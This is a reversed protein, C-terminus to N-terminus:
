QNGLGNIELVLQYAQDDLNSRPIVADGLELYMHSSDDFTPWAPRGQGNPDGTKAFGVWYNMMDESLSLDQPEPSALQQIEDFNGFAYVIEIGHFAGLGQVRPDNPVRTFEYMYAPADVKAMETCAFRSSAAFAMETILRTLAPKVEAPTTAPYLAFVQDAYSGFVLNLAMRYMEPGIDPAFISGESANTGNILPVAKQKGAAFLASPQDPLVYGDINPGLAIPNLIRNIPTGAQILEDPTKSRLCALVDSAQSCGLRNAIDQGSTEAEALTDGTGLRLAMDMFPGSEIIARSFLGDALPSVMLDCISMGGASEGFVTVTKPDGGFAAINERVWELAAVQDLLGYNGSVGHPSEGSLAPHALFGLPGLRYNITVVVVGKQALNHGDYLPFSGSGTSFAGGHIWVMVPLHDGPSDAPTWVNLYLCDESTAEVVNLGGFDSPPQPCSPGYDTCQRVDKWPKVPQPEQWRLDGVPPAAYPVGKYTWIGDDLTGNIPGSDLIPTELSTTKVTNSGCGFLLTAGFSLLCLVTTLLLLKRRM